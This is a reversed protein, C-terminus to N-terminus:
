RTVSTPRAESTTRTSRALPASSRRTAAIRARPTLGSRSRRRPRTLCSWARARRRSEPATHGRRRSSVRCAASASPLAPRRASACDSRVGCSPRVPESQRGNQSASRQRVRSVLPRPPQDQPGPGGDASRRLCSRPLSAPLPPSPPPAEAEAEAEAPATEAAPEAEAETPEAEVEASPEAQNAEPEPAPEDAPAEAADAPQEDPVSTEDSVSAAGETSAVEESGDQTDSPGATEPPTEENEPTEKDAM